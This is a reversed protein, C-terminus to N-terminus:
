RTYKWSHQRGIITMRDLSVELDMEAVVPPDCIDGPLRYNLQSAFWLWTNVVVMMCTTTVRWMVGSWALYRPKHSLLVNLPLAPVGSRASDSRGTHEELLFWTLDFAFMERTDM